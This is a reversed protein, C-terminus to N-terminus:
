ESREIKTTGIVNPVPDLIGLQQTELVVQILVCPSVHDLCPETIHELLAHFLLWIRITNHIIVLLGRSM